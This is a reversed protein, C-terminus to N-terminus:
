LLETTSTRDHINLTTEVSPLNKKLQAMQAVIVTGFNDVTLYINPLDEDTTNLKIELINEDVEIGEITYKSMRDEM